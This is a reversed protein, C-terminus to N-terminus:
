QGALTEELRAQSAPPLEESVKTWSKMRHTESPKTGKHGMKDYCVYM